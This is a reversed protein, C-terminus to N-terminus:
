AKVEERCNKAFKEVPENESKELPRAYSRKIEESLTYLIQKLEERPRDKNTEYWKEAQEAISLIVQFLNSAVNLYFLLLFFALNGEALLADYNSIYALGVIITALTFCLGIAGITIKRGRL